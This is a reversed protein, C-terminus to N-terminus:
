KLQALLDAPLEAGMEKEIRQVEKGWKKKEAQLRKREAFWFTLTEAVVGEQNQDFVTGFASIAYNNENFWNRWETATKTIVEGSVHLM